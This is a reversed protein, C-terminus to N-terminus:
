GCDAGVVQEAREVEVIRIEAKPTFWFVKKEQRWVSERLRLGM